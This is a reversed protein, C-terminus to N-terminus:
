LRFKQDEHSIDVIFIYLIIDNKCVFFPYNIKYLYLVQDRVRHLVCHTVTNSTLISAPHGFWLHDIHLTYCMCALSWLDVSFNLKVYAFIILYWLTSALQFTIACACVGSKTKRCFLHTWKCRHPRWNLRSSAASTHADAKVTPLLAPCVM